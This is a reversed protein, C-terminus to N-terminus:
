KRLSISNKISFNVGGRCISDNACSDASASQDDGSRGFGVAGIVDFLVNQVAQRINEFELLHYDVILCTMYLKTRSSFNLISVLSTPYSCLFKSLDGFCSYDESM